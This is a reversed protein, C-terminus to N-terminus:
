REGRDAMLIRTPVLPKAYYRKDSSGKPQPADFAPYTRSLVRPDAATVDDGFWVKGQSM